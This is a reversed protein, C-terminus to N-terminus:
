RGLEQKKFNVEDVDEGVEAKCEGGQNKNRSHLCRHTRDCRCYM